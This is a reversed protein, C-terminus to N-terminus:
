RTVDVIVSTVYWRKGERALFRGRSWGRLNGLTWRLDDLAGRLKAVAGTRRCRPDHDPTRRVMGRSYDVTRHVFRDGDWFQLFEYNTFGAEVLMQEVYARDTRTIHEDNRVDKSSREFAARDKPNEYDPVAIRLRGGPRLVRHCETLLAVIEAPRIHELFDETHIQAVSGDPLPLPERLDHTVHWGTAGEFLDVAVLGEYGEAPHCNLRGGLNLAIPDLAAVETWTMTSRAATM